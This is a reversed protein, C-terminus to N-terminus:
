SPYFVNLSRGSHSFGHAGGHVYFSAIVETAVGAQINFTLQTISNFVLYLGLGGGPPDEEKEAFYGQLYKILVERDLSGFPDKVALAVNRGDCAYTLTAHEHPELELPQARDRDAYRPHGDADRPADFMANMILENAALMAARTVPKFCDLRELYDELEATAEDKSATGTITRENFNIGWTTLYKDLGFIDHRLLKQCTVVLETEDIHESSAAVGGHKAILNNINKSTLSDKVIPSEHDHSTLLAIVDEHERYLLDMLWDTEERPEGADVICMGPGHSLANRVQGRDPPCCDVTFGASVLSRKVHRRMNRSSTVLLIRSAPDM